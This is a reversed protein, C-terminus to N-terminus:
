KWFRGSSSIPGNPHLSERFPPKPPVIFKQSELDETYLRFGNKRLGTRADYLSPFVIRDFVGSANHVFFITSAGQPEEDILAWNQQLFDVIKFWYERSHIIIEKDIM